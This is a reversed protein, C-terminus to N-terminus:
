DGIFHTAWSRVIKGNLVHFRRLRRLTETSFSSIPVWILHKKQDRAMAKLRITPKRAAIFAVNREKSFVLAGYTLREAMTRLDMNQTIEFINPISRPPFLLSLGGYWARAVGPGIMDDFPDTAFFSLTSEEPHEAYWTACHPYRDDHDGDFIIVVTDLDGRSPPVEKVYIDGTHWNRLTERFDIGDKVSSSFKESRVLDECVIRQAKARLYANFHEVRRDEPLHSCMGSPNWNYRYKLKRLRTPDPKLSVSRWFIRRDHFLNVADHVGGDPPLAVRDIGVSMFPRDHEVPIYPYYRASALTRVGYANGGVGKAAEVIDFLSPMFCDDFVSLNRLFKLAAQIRAPSLEVINEREDYYNDRTERFLDKLADIPDFEGAFPDMREKEMKGAIFPLQGLAFYLHDPNIYETTVACSPPKGFDRNHSEERAFHHVVRAYRGLHVLALVNAHRAALDHLRFACYQARLEEEPDDSANGVVRLCLSAFADFGLRRVAYSDPLPPLPKPRSLKPHGIFEVPRRNQSAQRVAEIAADCPDTPVYYLPDDIGRAIIASIYPLRDVAPILDDRFCAPIDVAFCDYRGGGCLRRVHQSFFVDGHIYPALAIGPAIRFPVSTDTSQM